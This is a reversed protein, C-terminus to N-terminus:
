DRYQRIRSGDITLALVQEDQMLHDDVARLTADALAPELGATFRGALTGWGNQVSVTIAGVLDESSWVGWTRRSADAIPLPEPLHGLQEDLSPLADTVTDRAVRLRINGEASVPKDFALYDSWTKSADGGSRNVLDTLRELSPTDAVYWDHDEYDGAALVANLKYNAPRRQVFTSVGSRETQTTAQEAADLLADSRIVEVELGKPYTRLLTNSTYDAGSELHQRVLENVLSVDLLPSDATVRVLHEAPYDAIVEVFRALLDDSPGRVSAADHNRAVSEIDQDVALDSVAVITPGETFGSLRDLAVDLVTSGAFPLQHRDRRNTGDHGAQIVLLISM